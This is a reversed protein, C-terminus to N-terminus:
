ASDVQSKLWADIDQIDMLDMDFSSREVASEFLALTGTFFDADDCSEIFEDSMKPESSQKDVYVLFFGDNDDDIEFRLDDGVEAGIERFFDGTKTVRFEDRTGGSTYKNNYFILAWEWSRGLVPSTVKLYIRPNEPKENQVMSSMLLDAFFSTRHVFFGSQHANSGALHGLDNQSLKKSYLTKEM